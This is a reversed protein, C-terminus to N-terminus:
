YVGELCYDRDIVAQKVDQELQGASGIHEIFESFSPFIETSEAILWGAINEVDFRTVLYVPKGERFAEWGESLTGAGLQASRDYLLVIADSQQVGIIDKRFIFKRVLDKYKEIDTHRMERVYFPDPEEPNKHGEVVPDFVDHGLPALKETIYVRWDKGLGEQFEMGGSLYFKM